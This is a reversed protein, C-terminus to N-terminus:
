HFGEEYKKITTNLKLLNKSANKIDFKEPNFKYGIWAITNQYEEDSKNLLINKLLQYASVGGCDEPPCANEGAVIIPLIENVPKNSINILELHHMWGDGFDYEYKVATGLKSFIDEIMLTKGDTVEGMEDLVLRRDAIILDDITFQYLHYNKWGMVVQIIQHLVYMSNESSVIFTRSVVPNTDELYIKITFSPMLLTFIIILNFGIKFLALKM